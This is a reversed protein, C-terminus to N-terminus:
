IYAVLEKMFKHNKRNNWRLVIKPKACMKDLYVDVNIGTDREVGDYKVVGDKEVMSYFEFVEVRGSQYEVYLVCLNERLMKRVDDRENDFDFTMVIGDGVYLTDVGPVISYYSSSRYVQSCCFLPLLVAVLFIIRKMDSIIKLLYIFFPQM